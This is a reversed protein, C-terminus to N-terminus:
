DVPKISQRALKRARDRLQAVEDEMGLGYQNGKYRPDQSLRELDRASQNLSASTPWEIGYGQNELDSIITEASAIDYSGIEDNAQKKRIDEWEDQTVFMKVIAGKEPGGYMRKAFANDEGNIFIETGEKIIDNVKM